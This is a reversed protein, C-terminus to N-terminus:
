GGKLLIARYPTDCRYYRLIARCPAVSLNRLLLHVRFFGGLIFFNMHVLEESCNGNLEQSM